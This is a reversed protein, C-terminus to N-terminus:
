RPQTELYRRMDGSAAALKRLNLIKVDLDILAGTADQKLGPAVHLAAVGARVDAPPLDISCDRPLRGVIMGKGSDTLLEDCRARIRAQVAYPLLSRVRLRYPTIVQTYGVLADMRQYFNALRERLDPSGILEANGSSLIEDYTSHKGARSFIQTAQYADVLFAVGLTDAPRDLANLTALAHAHVDTYYAIGARAAAETAQLDNILRSRYSAARERDIRAENWNNAQLGLFVGIGVIALEIAVAFWDQEAFRKRLKAFVM